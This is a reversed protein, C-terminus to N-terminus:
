CNQSLIYDVASTSMKATTLKNRVFVECISYCPKGIDRAGTGSMM